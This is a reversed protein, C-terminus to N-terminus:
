YKNIGMIRVKHLAPLKAIVCWLVCVLNLGLPQKRFDTGNTALLFLLVPMATFLKRKYTAYVGNDLQEWFTLRCYQGQDEDAFPTGKLWHLLYYTVVGHGLHVYTWALGSDQIVACVVFYGLLVLGIYWAWFAPTNLWNVNKNTVVESPQRKHPMTQAFAAQNQGLVHM